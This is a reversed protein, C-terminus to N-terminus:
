RAVNKWPSSVGPLDAVGTFSVGNMYWVANVGTTTNRWLIDPKGDGNFDGVGVIKYATNSLGPLDSVSAVTVGNMHWVANHGNSTNQWLIDPKGDGNFDGVGVITWPSGLGPLNVVSTVTVGNMYWIANAGTTNNRWLIDPKSDGNFDGIGVITWPSGLGPLNAVSAVIAGNMYWVSNGGTTNNRWLIDPQGDGNFDGMGAITYATNSVGPLDVVSTVTTGNMYWLANAGTTTHSWIIQPHDAASGSVENSFSSETGTSNYATLSLYYTQGASLGGLAFTTRNGVDVPPGYNKSATGYYVKYGVVNPDTSADWAIIIQKAFAASIMILSIAFILAAILVFRFCSACQSFAHWSSKKIKSIM